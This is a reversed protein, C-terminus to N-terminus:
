RVKRQLQEVIRTLRAVEAELRSVRDVSPAPESNALWQEVDHLNYRRGPYRRTPDISPMGERTRLEVWRTSRQLHQALQQKTLLQAGASPFAHVTV